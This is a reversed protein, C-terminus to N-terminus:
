WDLPNEMKPLNQDDSLFVFNTFNGFNSSKAILKNHSYPSDFSILLKHSSIEIGPFISWRINHRHFKCIENNGVTANSISWLLPKWFKVRSNGTFKVTSHKPYVPISLIPQHIYIAVLHEMWASQPQEWRYGGQTRRVGTHEHAVRRGGLLPLPGLLTLSPPRRYDRIM